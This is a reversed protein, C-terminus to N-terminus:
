KVNKERKKEMEKKVSREAMSEMVKGPVQEAIKYGLYVVLYSIFGAM